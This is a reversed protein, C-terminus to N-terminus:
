DSATAPQSPAARKELFFWTTDDEVYTPDRHYMFGYDVLHMDPHRELVEGAFDRKFLRGAHGRYSVETPFPNYYEAICIWRRSTRHLLDYVRPLSTPNIHILVGKVIVLDRGHDPVFDLVSQHYVKVGTIRSLEAAAYPNIEVASLEATPLLQRLALLNLGVNAGFEIVSRIEGMRGELAKHWFAAVGRGWQEGSNRKAYETGFDGFWFREQETQFAM